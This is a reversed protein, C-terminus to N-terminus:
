LMNRPDVDVQFRSAPELLLRERATTLLKQLRSASPAYVEVQQRWSDAIRAIPCPSPGRVVIDDEGLQVLQRELRSATEESRALNEDRVVIRALRTAPPLGLAIRDTLETEAFSEFDHRAALSIAPSTPDYTQVIALGGAAGRGCRGAVQSVLQYTREIARFDPMHMATDADIVGVLRVGPVDLGKAIMQTGLLVRVRGAAFDGLTSHFDQMSRMSDSDVRRLGDDHALEPWRECLEAEIRQTGLGLKVIRNNCSSCAKPLRVETHCHHCRLFGGNPLEGARHFVM